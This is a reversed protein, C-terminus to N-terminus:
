EYYRVDTISIMPFLIGLVYAMVVILLFFIIIGVDYRSYTLEYYYTRKKLNSFRKAEMAVAIRQAKRISQALLPISYFMLKQYVGMVGKKEKIGRVKLAHRLTQFEEVMIPMLRISAMFSYAYRPSLKLQQMLSYFLLVPKTTLAFLLGLVAFSLARFGLHLGRYFSEETIHILGWQFWTIDGKGFFIMATSSSVFVLVFPSSYLLLYKLPHGSYTFLVIACFSTFLVLVNPNHTFIVVSFLLMFLLLKLSPNVKTVWTNKVDYGLEM